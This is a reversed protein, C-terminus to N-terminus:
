NLGMIFLAIAVAIALVGVVISCYAKKISKENNLQGLRYNIPNLYLNQILSIYVDSVKIYKEANDDKTTITYVSLEYYTNQIDKLLDNFEGLKVRLKEADKEKEISKYPFDAEKAQFQEVFSFNGDILKDYHEKLKDTEM